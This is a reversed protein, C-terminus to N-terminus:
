CIVETPKNWPLGTGDGIKWPQNKYPDVIPHPFVPPTPKPKFTNRDDIFNQVEKVKDQIREWEADDPTVGGSIEIYGNLWTIFEEATM